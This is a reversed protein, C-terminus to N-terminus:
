IEIRMALSLEKLRRQQLVKAAPDTIKQDKLVGFEKRMEKLRDFMPDNVYQKRVINARSTGKQIFKGGKFKIEGSLLGKVQDKLQRLDTLAINKRGPDIDLVKIEARAAKIQAQSERSLQELRRSKQLKELNTKPEKKSLDIAEQVTKNLPAFHKGLDLNQGFVMGKRPQPDKLTSVDYLLRGRRMAKKVENKYQALAYLSDKKAQPTLRPDERISKVALAINQELYKRNKESNRIM